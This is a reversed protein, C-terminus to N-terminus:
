TSYFYLVNKKYFSSVINFSLLPFILVLEDDVDRNFQFFQVQDELEKSRASLPGELADFSNLFYHFWWLVLSYPSLGIIVFFNKTDTLKHHSFLGIIVFFNETDTLKHSNAYTIKSNTRM